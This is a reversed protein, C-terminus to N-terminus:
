AATPKKKSKKSLKVPINLQKKRRITLTGEAGDVDLFYKDKPINIDLFKKVLNLRKTNIPSIFVETWDKNTNLFDLTIDTVTANVKFAKGEGTMEYGIKHSPRYIREYKTEDETFPIFKVIYDIGEEGTNFSYRTGLASPEKKWPFVNGKKVDFELELLLNIFNTM